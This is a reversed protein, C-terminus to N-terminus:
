RGVASDDPFKSHPNDPVDMASQASQREAAHNADAPQLSARLLGRSVHAVQLWREPPRCPSGSEDGSTRGGATGRAHRLLHFGDIFGAYAEEDGRRPTLGNNGNNLMLRM